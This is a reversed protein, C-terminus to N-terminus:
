RRMGALVAGDHSDGPLSPGGPTFLGGSPPRVPNPRGVPDAFGGVGGMPEPDVKSPAAPVSSGRPDSAMDHKIFGGVNRANWAVVQAPMDVRGGQSDICYGGGAGDICGVIRPPKDPASAVALPASAAIPASAAVSAVDSAPPDFKRFFMKIGVGFCVLLLLAALVGGRGSTPPAVHAVASHFLRYHKARRMWPKKNGLQTREPNSAHDWTYTMCLASGMVSRVHRHLGVLNRITTDILQPHQTIILFDVGYHRHIELCQIWYPPKRGLSGRPALFQAEDVVILDGPKCWLWWNQVLPRLDRSEATAPDVVRDVPDAGALRQFVPSDGTEMQNWFDVEQDTVKDGTLKHPLREHDLILGRVGATLVRRTYKSGDDMVLERVCETAVREAVAYTTKGAGPTGTILEITM